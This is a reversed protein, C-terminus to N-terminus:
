IFSSDIPHRALSFFIIIIRGDNKSFMTSVPLDDIATFSPGGKPRRIVEREEEEEEEDEISNDDDDDNSDNIVEHKNEFRPAPSAQTRQQHVDIMSTMPTAEECSAEFITSLMNEQEQQAMMQQQQQQQQQQHTQLLQHYATLYTDESEDDHTFRNSMREDVADNDTINM